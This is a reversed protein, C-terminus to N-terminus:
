FWQSVVVVAALVLLSALLYGLVILMCAIRYDFRRDALRLLGYGEHCLRYAVYSCGLAIVIAFYEFWSTTMHYSACNRRPEIASIRCYAPGPRSLVNLRPNSRYDSAFSNRFGTIAPISLVERCCGSM